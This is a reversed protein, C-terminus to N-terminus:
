GARRVPPATGGAIVQLRTDSREFRTGPESVLRLVGNESPTPWSSLYVVRRPSKATGDRFLAVLFRLMFLVGAICIVDMILTATM